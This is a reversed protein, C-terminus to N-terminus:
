GMRKESIYPLILQNKEKKWITIYFEDAKQYYKYLYKCFRSNLSSISHISMSVLKELTRYVMAFYDVNAFRWNYLLVFSDSILTSLNFLHDWLFEICRVFIWYIETINLSRMLMGYIECFNWLGWQCKISKVGM